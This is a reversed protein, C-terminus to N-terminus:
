YEAPMRQPHWEIDQQEKTSKDLKKLRARERLVFGTFIREPQYSGNFGRIFAISQGRIQDAYVAREERRCEVLAAQGIVDASSIHDDLTRIANKACQIMAAVAPSMPRDQAPASGGMSVGVSLLLLLGLGRISVAAGLM